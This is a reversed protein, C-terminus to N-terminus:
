HLGLQIKSVIRSPDEGKYIIRAYLKLRDNGITQGHLLLQHFLLQCRNVHSLVNKRLTSYQVVIPFLIRAVRILWILAVSSPSDFTVM